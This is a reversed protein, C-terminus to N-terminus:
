KKRMMMILVLGIVIIAILAAVSIGLIYTDTPPEIPQEPIPPPVPAQEVYMTTQDYSSGYSNTGVFTAMITYEGPIDPEWVLSYKGATNSTATGINRFNGNSDIVDITVDVGTASAPFQQQNYVYNMWVGMDEDSVCAIGPNGPSQDTISGEFVVTQGQM